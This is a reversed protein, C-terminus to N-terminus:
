QIDWKKLIFKGSYEAIDQGSLSVIFSADESFIIQRVPEGTNIKRIEFETKADWVIFTNDTSGTAVLKGDRSFAVSNVKGYHGMPIKLLPKKPQSYSGVSILFVITITFTIRRVGHPRFPFKKNM